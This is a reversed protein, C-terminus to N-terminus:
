VGTAAARDSLRRIMRVTRSRLLFTKIKEEPFGLERLLCAQLLLKLVEVLYLLRSGRETRDVLKEDYHTLYNRNDYIANITAKSDPVLKDLVFSFQTFLQKLRRRLSLENSYKLKDSLWQRHVAPVAELIAKMRAEHEPPPLNTEDHSRRHYAEVAQILALFNFDIYNSPNYLTGFYIASVPALWEAKTFWNQLCEREMGEIDRLSFLFEDPRPARPSANRVPQYLIEVVQPKTAEDAESDNFTASISGTRILAGTALTLFQELGTTINMFDSLANNGALRLELYVEQRITRSFPTFRSLPWFALSLDMGCEGTLVPHREPTEYSVHIHRRETDDFITALGELFGTRGAWEKLEPIHLQWFSFRMEAENDFAVGIILFTAHYTCPLLPTIPLCPEATRIAHLLTVDEGAATHGQIVEFERSNTSGPLTDPLALIAGKRRSFTLAGFMPKDSLGPLWFQGQCPFKM